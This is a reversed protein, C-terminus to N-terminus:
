APAWLRSCLLLPRFTQAMSALINKNSDLMLLKASISGVSNPTFSVNELCSKNAAYAVGTTCTGGTIAFDANQAGDEIITFSAPTVAGNFGFVVNSGGAATKGVASSGLEAYGFGVKAVDAQGNPQSQSTPVYLINRKSDLVVQGTAPVGSILVASSTQPTGAPNPVMVVGVQSDSIYLNGAADATVGKVAPLNPDVRAMTAEAATTKTSQYQENTATSPIELVGAVGGTDEVFYINGEPDQAVSNPRATLGIAPVWNWGATKPNSWAGSVSLVRIDAAENGGTDGVVITNNPQFYGLGEGTLDAVNYQAWAEPENNNGSNTCMTTTPNAPSLDKAGGDNLGTWTQTAANWPFMVICNNYNAELYLNNGPDFIIGPNQYAGGLSASPTPGAVVIAPGGNVPFEYLAGNPWDVVWWDGAQDIATDLITGWGTPHSLGAAASATVLPSGQGKALGTLCTSLLMLTFAFGAFRRLATFSTTGM